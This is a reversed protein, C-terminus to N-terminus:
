NRTMKLPCTFKSNHGLPRSAFFTTMVKFAVSGVAERSPTNCVVTSGVVTGPVEVTGFMCKAELSPVFESPFATSGSVTVPTGGTVTGFSPELVFAVTTDYFSFPVETFSYDNGNNSIGVFSLGSREAVPSACIVETDSNRRARSSGAWSFRCSCRPTAPTISDPIKKHMFRRNIPAPKAESAEM